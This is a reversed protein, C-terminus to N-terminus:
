LIFCFISGLKICQTIQLITLKQARECFQSFVVILKTMGTQGSTNGCPVVLSENSPNEHFKFNSYKEFMRRFFELKM